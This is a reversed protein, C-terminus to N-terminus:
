HVPVTSRRANARAVRVRAGTANIRWTLLKRTVGYHQAADELDLGRRVIHLCAPVTVFLASGLFDAEGEIAANWYRCGRDDLAPAPDHRLLAHALEHGLNSHQRGLVHGDNYVILRKKGAFVTVASFSGEGYSSFHQVAGPADGAFASLPLM